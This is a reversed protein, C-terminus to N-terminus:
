SEFDIAARGATNARVVVVAAQHAPHDIYTRLDAANKFHSVLVADSNGDVDVSNAFVKLDLLEDIVEVLPELAGAIAAVAAAKGAEDEVNVKWAVIHTIM